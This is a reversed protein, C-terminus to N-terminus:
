HIGACEVGLMKDSGLVSKGGVMGLLCSSALMGPGSWFSDPAEPVFEFGWAYVVKVVVWRRYRVYKSPYRM